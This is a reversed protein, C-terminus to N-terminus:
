IGITNISSILWDDVDNALVDLVKATDGNKVSYADAVIVLDVTEVTISGVRFQDFRSYAAIGLYSGYVSTENTFDTADITQRSAPDIVLGEGFMVFQTNAGTLNYRTGLPILTVSTIRVAQGFSLTAIEYKGDGDFGAGLDGYTNLAGIGDCNMSLTPTSFEYPLQNGSPGGSYLASSVSLSVGIQVFSMSYANPVSGTLDFTIASSPM